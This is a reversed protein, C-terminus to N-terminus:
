TSIPITAAIVRPAAAVAVAAEKAEINTMLQIAWATSLYRQLAVVLAVLHVVLLPVALLISEKEDITEILTETEIETATSNETEAKWQTLYILLLILWLGVERQPLLQRHWARLLQLFLPQGLLVQLHYLLLM